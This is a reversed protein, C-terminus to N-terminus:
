LILHDYSTTFLNTIAIWGEQCQCYVYYNSAKLRNKITWIKAKKQKQIKCKKECCNPNSEKLNILSSNLLAESPSELDTITMQSTVIIVIPLTHM